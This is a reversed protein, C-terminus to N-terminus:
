HRRATPIRRVGSTPSHCHFAAQTKIFTKMCAEAVRFSCAADQGKLVCVLKHLGGEGGGVLTLAKILCFPLDNSNTM